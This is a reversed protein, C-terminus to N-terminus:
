RLGARRHSWRAARPERPIPRSSGSKSGIGIGDPQGTQWDRGRGTGSRLQGRDILIAPQRLGGVADERTVSAREPCSLRGCRPQILTRRTSPGTAATAQDATEVEDVEVVLEDPVLAV